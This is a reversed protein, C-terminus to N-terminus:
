TRRQVKDGTYCMHFREDLTCDFRVDGRRTVEADPACVLRQLCLTYGHPCTLTDGPLLEQRAAALPVVAVILLLSFM